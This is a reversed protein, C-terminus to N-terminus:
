LSCSHAGPGGLAPSWLLAAFWITHMAVQHGVWHRHLPLLYPVTPRVHPRALVHGLLVRVGPWHRRSLRMNGRYVVHVGSIACQASPLAEHPAIHPGSLAYPSVHCTCTPIDRGYGHAHEHGICRCTFSPAFLFPVIICKAPKWLTQLYRPSYAWRAEIHKQYLPMGNGVAVLLDTSYSAVILVVITSIVGGNEYWTQDGIAGNSLVIALALPVIVTNTTLGVALKDFISAQEETQTDQGEWAVM